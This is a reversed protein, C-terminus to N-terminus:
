ILIEYPSTTNNDNSTNTDIDIKNANANANNELFKYHRNVNFLLYSWTGALIGSYVFFINRPPM